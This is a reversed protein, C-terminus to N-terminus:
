KTRWCQIKNNLVRKDDDTLATGQRMSGAGDGASTATAGLAGSRGGLEITVSLVTVRSLWQSRIIHETKDPRFPQLLAPPSTASLPMTESILYRLSGVHLYEKELNVGNVSATITPSFSTSFEQPLKLSEGSNRWMAGWLNNQISLLSRQIKEM